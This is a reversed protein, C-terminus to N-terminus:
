ATEQKCEDLKGLVTNKFFIVSTRENLIGCMVQVTLLHHLLLTICSCLSNGCENRDNIIFLLNSCYM